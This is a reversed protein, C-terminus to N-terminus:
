CSPPEKIISDITTKPWKEQREKAGFMYNEKSHTYRFCFQSYEYCPSFVIFISVHCARVSFCRVSACSAAMVPMLLLVSFLMSFPFVDGVNSSSSTMASAKFRRIVSRKSDSRLHNRGRLKMITCSSFDAIMRCAIEMIRSIM